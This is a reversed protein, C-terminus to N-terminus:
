TSYPARRVDGALLAEIEGILELVTARWTKYTAYEFLPKPLGRRLDAPMEQNLDYEEARAMADNIRDLRAYLQARRQQLRAHRQLYLEALDAVGAGDM